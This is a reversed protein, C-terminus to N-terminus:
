SPPRGEASSKRGAFTSAPPLRAGCKRLRGPRRADGGAQQPVRIMVDRRHRRLTIGIEGIGLQEAPQAIQRTRHAARRASGDSHAAFDIGFNFGQLAISALSDPDIGHHVSVTFAPASSTGNSSTRCIACSRNCCACTLRRFRCNKASAARYWLWVQMRTVMVASFLSTMIGIFLTVAFGKV